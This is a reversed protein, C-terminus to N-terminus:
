DPQADVQSGQGTKMGVAGPLEAAHVHERAFAHGGTQRSGSAGAWEKATLKSQLSLRADIVEQWKGYNILGISYPIGKM